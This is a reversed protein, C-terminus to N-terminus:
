KSDTDEKGHLIKYTEIFDGQLRMDSIYDFWSNVTQGQLGYVLKTARRQGNELLLKDKMLSPSWAQICYELHPRIYGKKIIM